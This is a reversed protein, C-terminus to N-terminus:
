NSAIYAKLHKASSDYVLDVNNPSAPVGGFSGVNIGASTANPSFTFKTGDNNTPVASFVTGTSLTKSTLTQTGTLTAVTATEISFTHTAGDDVLSVGNNAAFTQAAAM